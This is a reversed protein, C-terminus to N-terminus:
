KKFRQYFKGTLSDPGQYFEGTFSDPGQSEKTANKFNSDIEKNIILRNQNGHIIQLKLPLGQPLHYSM